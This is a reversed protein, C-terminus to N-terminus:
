PQSSTIAQGITSIERCNRLSIELEQEKKDLKKNFVSSRLKMSNHTSKLEAKERKTEECSPWSTNSNM